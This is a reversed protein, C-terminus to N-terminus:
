VRLGRSPYPPVVDPCARTLEIKGRRRALSCPNVPEHLFVLPTLRTQTKNHCINYICHIVTITIQITDFPIFLLPIYITITRTTQTPCLPGVTLTTPMFARNHYSLPYTDQAGGCIPMERKTTMKKKKKKKSGPLADRWRM